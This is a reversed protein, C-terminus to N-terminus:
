IYKDFLKMLLESVEKYKHLSHSYVKSYYINYKDINKNYDKDTKKDIRKINIKDPNKINAYYYIQLHKHNIKLENNIKASKYTNIYNEGEFLKDTGFLNISDKITDEDWEKFLDYGNCFVNNNTYTIKKTRSIKLLDYAVYEASEKIDTGDLSVSIISKINGTKDNEKIYNALYLSYCGGYSHGIFVFKNYSAKIINFWNIFNVLEKQPTYQTRFYLYFDIGKIDKFHRTLENCFATGHPKMGHFYIYCVKDKKIDQKVKIIEPTLRYDFFNINRGFYYESIKSLKLCTKSDKTDDILKLINIMENMSKLLPRIILIIGAYLSCNNTTHQWFGTDYNEIIGNHIYIIYTHYHNISCMIFGEQKTNIEFISSKFVKYKFKLEPNMKKVWKIIDEDLIGANQQPYHETFYTFIINNKDDLELTNSKIFKLLNEAM